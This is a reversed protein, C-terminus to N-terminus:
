RCSLALWLLLDSATSYLFDDHHLDCFYKEFGKPSKARKLNRVYQPPSNAGPVAICSSRARDVRGIISEEESVIMETQHLNRM